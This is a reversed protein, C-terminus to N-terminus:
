ASLAPELGARPVMSQKGSTTSDSLNATVEMEANVVRPVFGSCSTRSIAQRVHEAAAAAASHLLAPDASAYVEMTMTATSHRALTMCTKLDAGSRVVADIYTKRLSHWTAKGDKTELRVRAKAYDAAILPATTQMCPLSLLPADEPKGKAHAKLRDFLDPTIPQRADQRNKTFAAGLTLAPGFPDLNADKLARLEAVRYGTALATEYALRRAPTAVSFLAAVEADNLARHPVRPRTDIRGLAALPNLPLISRRVCWLCLARLAEVRLAVTKPTHAGAELMDQIAVEVPHLEVDGIVELNLAERWWELHM